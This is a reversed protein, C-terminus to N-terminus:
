LHRGWPGCVVAVIGVPVLCTLGVGLLMGPIFGRWGFRARVWVGVWVAAVLGVGLVPVLLTTPDAGAKAASVVIGVVLAAGAIWSFFGALAQVAVPTAPGPKAEPRGRYDLPAPPPDLPLGLNAPGTEDDASEAM